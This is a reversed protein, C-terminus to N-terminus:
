VPIFSRITPSTETKTKWTISLVCFSKQVRSNRNVSKFSSELSKLDSTFRDSTQTEVKCSSKARIGHVTIGNIDMANCKDNQCSIKLNKGHIMIAACETVEPARTFAGSLPQALITHHVTNEAHM